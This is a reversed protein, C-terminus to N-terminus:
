LNLYTYAMSRNAQVDSPTLIKAKHIVKKTSVHVKKTSSANKNLRVINGM